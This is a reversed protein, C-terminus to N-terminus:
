DLRREVALRSRTFLGAGLMAVLPVVVLVVLISGPVVLRYPEQAPWSEAYRRNAATLIIVASGLGALIGLVSGTGAIVGAQCLSLLRRVRPSAGVAALTSLDARGEAAALGTAIAAAGCTVVGAALALLLLQPSRDTKSAGREVTVDVPLYARLAATFRAQQGQDPVVDTGVVWGVQRGTLGLREAAARSLVLRDPSMAGTLAYGPVTSIRTDLPEPDDETRTAVLTVRGDAVRRPDGVVVGGARLVATAAATAAPDADALALLARGDDVVAVPYMSYFGETTDGCRPDARAARQEARSLPEGLLYPCAREAPLRATVDCYGPGTACVPYALPAASGGPLHTRALEDVVPLPPLQQGPDDGHSSTVLVHGPPLTSQYQAVERDGQSALYVGLAVSGAVAAMVASIAPAASARNRSADRLAIRPALPLLRGFRALGGLLAPTAFVLGLEGLVLGLLIGTSQSRAAGFAAVACGAATLAVGLVLWRRRHPPASRRGALGAVVDQRAATWAPALAALVGATVAVLAIAALAAPFVRYGGSRAMLLYEEVLPRGAFAAAVGLAVGVAAGVCGLVVGDALVVRRLQAADGGAVAVLALERRRRRVGVAFAPGVLLVVELLGLGGILLGNGLEDAALGSAQDLPVAGPVAGRATITVGNDNLRRVLADDPPGPLDVMWGFEGDRDPRGVTAPYLAVVEGLDDPFEAIGVVTYSRSGDAVTVWGGLHTGLRSRARESVAIETPGAPARGTLLRASGRALPDALDMARADLSVDRGGRRVEFPMWRAVPVVRSGPPLLAAVEEVRTPRRVPQDDARRGVPQDDAQRYGGGWADQRIRGDAVARLAADAVGLQRDLQEDRTLEAMDYSVAVFTLALVPLAIMALVLATRGRARRAERRAIRLAARWSGVLAALRGAGRRSM